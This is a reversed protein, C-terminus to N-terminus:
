QTPVRVLAAVGLLYLLGGLLMVRNFGISMSLITALVSSVVSFFGNVAWSWAVFEEAYPTVAAVTRLGLPMFGGLCFGLPALFVVTLPVRLTLPWGVGRSLIPALGREYFLIMVWVGAALCVLAANRRAVYRGSALSG